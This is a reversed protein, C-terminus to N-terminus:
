GKGTGVDVRNRKSPVSLPIEGTASRELGQWISQSTDHTIQSGISGDSITPAIIESISSGSGFLIFHSWNPPSCSGVLFGGRTGKAPSFLRLQPPM